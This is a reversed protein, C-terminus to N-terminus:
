TRSEAKDWEQQFRDYAYTRDWNGHAATMLAMFVRTAVEKDRTFKMIDDVDNIYAQVPDWGALLVQSVIAEEEPPLANM